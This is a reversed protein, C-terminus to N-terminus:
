RRRPKVAFNWTRERRLRALLMEGASLLHSESVTERVSFHDGPDDMEIFSEEGGRGQEESSQGYLRLLGFYDAESEVVDL